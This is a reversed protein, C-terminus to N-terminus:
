EYVDSQVVKSENHVLIVPLRGCALVARPFTIAKLQLTAAGPHNWSGRQEKVDKNLM